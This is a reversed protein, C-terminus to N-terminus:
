FYIFISSILRLFSSDIVRLSLGPLKEPGPHISGRTAELTSPHLPHPPWEGDMRSRGMQGVEMRGEERRGKKGGRVRGEKGVIEGKIKKRM